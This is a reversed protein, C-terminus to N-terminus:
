KTDITDLIIGAFDTFSFDYELRSQRALYKKRNMSIRKPDIIMSRTIYNPNETEIELSIDYDDNDDDSSWLLYKSPEHSRNALESYDSDSPFLIDFLGM